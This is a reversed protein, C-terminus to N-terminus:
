NAYVCIRECPFTILPMVNFRWFHISEVYWVNSSDCYKKIPAINLCFPLVTKNCDTALTCPKIYVERLIHLCNWLLLLLLLLLLLGDMRHDSYHCYERSMVHELGAVGIDWGGCEDCEGDSAWEM